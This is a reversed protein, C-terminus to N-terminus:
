PTGVLPLSRIRQGTWSYLANAIAPAVLPAVLDAVGAPDATSRIMEVSVEGIDALLPLNMRGLIARTPLGGAYRVSAGTAYALGFILGGEIQQRAIDPNVQDGADVAAIIRGVALRDGEM